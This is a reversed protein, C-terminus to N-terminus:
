VTARMMQETVWTSLGDRRERFYRQSAAEPSFHLVKSFGAARLKAALDEPLFHTLWPEGM